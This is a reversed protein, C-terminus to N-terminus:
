KGGPEHPILSYTYYKGQEIVDKCLQGRYTSITGDGGEEERGGDGCMWHTYKLCLCVLGGQAGTNRETDVKHHHPAVAFLTGIQRRKIVLKM